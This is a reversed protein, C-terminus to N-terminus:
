RGVRAGVVLARGRAPFGVAEQYEVGFLNEIRGTLTVDFVTTSRSVLRYEVNADVRTYSPLTVRATTSGSFDRDDRDGVHDVRLGAMAKDSPFRYEAFAALHNTPRRLLREGEVFADDPQSDFGADTVSTNLYTYNGGVTFGPAVMARVNLEVGSARAAAVNYYNPDGENDTVFTYQIMDRFRQDFYAVGLGLREDFVRQEAGVEWSNSREPVLDPNGVAFPSNAYNELFNPEKFAKGLSGRIATGFRFNYTVGARYTVFMGFAANDDLRVGGVLTARSVPEVQLQAYYGLNLRNAVLSDLTNGFDSRSVSHTREDEDEIQFGATFTTSQAPYFNARLDASRRLVRGDSEYGFFGVTDAPGDAEDQIGSNLDDFLLSLRGEILSSFLRGAEVSVTIRDQRQYANRDVVLGSGDTPYHYESNNYRFSIRSDTRGDPRFSALGSAVLNDYQNNFEYLGDTSSTSFGVSYGVKDSGGALDGDVILSSQGGTRVGATVRIPGATDTTFLQVVGAVADSGYLVSTPGRVIEIREINDMTLDAFDVAGGPLNIPVGDVLVKLYDSEGGRVFVSTASGLSSTQVVDIGAVTRLADHVSVIGRARLESGELVTVTSPISSSRTPLKTATVVVPDLVTATDPVEQAALDTGTVLPVVLVSLALWRNMIGAEQTTRVAGKWGM